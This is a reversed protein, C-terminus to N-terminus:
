AYVQGELKIVSVFGARNCTSWEVAASTSSLVKNVNAAMKNYVYLKLKIQITIVSVIYVENNPMHRGGSDQEAHLDFEIVKWPSREGDNLVLM